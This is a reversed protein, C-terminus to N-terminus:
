SPELCCRDFSFPRRKQGEWWGAVHERSPDIVRGAPVVAVVEAGGVNLASAASQARGGSTFTDDVLLVREGGLRRVPRFGEDSASNHGVSVSGPGLLPEYTEFEHPVRRLASVLPHEGVRGTTSPVNTLVDWPEGFRMEICGGHRGLFHSLLGAVRLAFHDALRPRGGSKYGRLERHLQSPIEYLSVPVVLECPRSV